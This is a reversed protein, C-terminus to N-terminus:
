SEGGTGLSLSKLSSWANELVKRQRGLRHIAQVLRSAHTMAQALAARMAEAEALPDIRDVNGPVRHPTEIGNLEQKMPLLRRKTELAPIELDSKSGSVVHSDDLTVVILTCDGNEAVLPKDAALRLSLCGLSLARALHRRDLAVRIDPGTWTSRSLRFERIEGTEDNRARCAIGKEVEFTVAAVGDSADPWEPLAALLEAADREDIGVVSSDPSKPIVGAVDPFRGEADITLLITWSGALIALHEKTRGIRVESEGTLEKVGFVPIAPVVISERFPLTFGRVILALKGDTAVVCGAKGNVQIRQLAYRSAERAAAKGCEHLASIITPSIPHLVKPLTPREGGEPDLTEFALTRPKDRGEWRATGNKGVVTIEVAAGEVDELISLPMLFKEGDSAAHPVAVSLAVGDLTCSLQLREGSAIVFVPPAPPRPRATQCKRVVARFSRALGRPIVIM